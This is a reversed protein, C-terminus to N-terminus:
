ARILRYLPYKQAIPMLERRVSDNSAHLSISLEMQLSEKSLQEIKDVLGCTSITIRRAGIHLGQPANIIRISKLLNDYNDLPEGVGMFVIHSLDQKGKLLNKVYLIQGIIEACTLNRKFGGLGSACFRCGHKCGAQTSVCLTVRNETPIIVTEIAEKDKLEFLIKQTKDVSVQMGLVDPCDFVFEEELHKKLVEPLNRIDKFHLVNNQYIAEFIQTARFSKEGMSSLHSALEKYSLDLIHNKQM